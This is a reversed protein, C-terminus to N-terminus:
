GTVSPAVAGIAFTISAATVGSAMAMGGIYTGATVATWVGVYTASTSGANPVAIAANNATAGSSWTSFVIAQRTYGGGSFESAGTTGPTASHLSLYYTTGAVLVANGATNESAVTWLTAM